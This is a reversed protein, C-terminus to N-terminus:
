DLRRRTTAMWQAWQECTRTGLFANTFTASKDYCTNALDEVRAQMIGQRNQLTYADMNVFKAHGDSYGHVWKGGHGITSRWETGTGSSRGFRARMEIDQWYWNSTYAREDNTEQILHFDAPEAIEGMSRGLRWGEANTGSFVGLWWGREVIGNNMAFGICKGSKNFDSWCEPSTTGPQAKAIRRDTYFIDWNKIYPQLMGQFSGRDKWFGEDSTEIPLRDENDGAYMIWANLLQRGNSLAKTKKAAEKAQAFVPFLIAALIAIIAIVVLLEILTFGSSKKHM